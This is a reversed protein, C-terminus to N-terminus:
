NTENKSPIFYLNPFKESTHNYKQFINLIHNVYVQVRGCEYYYDLTEKSTRFNEFYNSKEVDYDVVWIKYNLIEILYINLSIFIDIRSLFSFYFM